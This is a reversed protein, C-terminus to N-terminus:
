DGYYNGAICNQEYQRVLNQRVQSAKTPVPQRYIQERLTDCQQKHQTSASHDSLYRSNTTKIKGSVRKAKHAASAGQQTSPSDNKIVSIPNKIPVAQTKRGVAAAQDGFHWQGKSDQWRQVTEAQVTHMSLLIVLLKFLSHNSLLRSQLLIKFLIFPHMM